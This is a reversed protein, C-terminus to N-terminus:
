NVHSDIVTARNSLHSAAKWVAWWSTKPKVLDDQTLHLGESSLFDVVNQENIRAHRTNEQITEHFQKNFETILKDLNAKAEDVQDSSLDISWGDTRTTPSMMQTVDFDQIQKNLRSVQNELKDAVDWADYLLSDNVKLVNVDDKGFDERNEFKVYEQTEAM